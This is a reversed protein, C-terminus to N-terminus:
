NGKVVTCVKHYLLASSTETEISTIENIKGNERATEITVDANSYFIFFPFIYEACARGEKTPQKAVKIPLREYQASTTKFTSCASLTSAVLVAVTLKFKM